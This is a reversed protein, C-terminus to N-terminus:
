KSVAKNVIDWIDKQSHGDAVAHRVADRVADISDAFGVQSLETMVEEGSSPSEEITSKPYGLGLVRHLVKQALVESMPIALQPQRYEKQCEGKEFGAFWAYAPVTRGGVERTWGLQISVVKPVVPPNTLDALYKEIVPFESM